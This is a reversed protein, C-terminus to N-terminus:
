ANAEPRGLWDPAPRDAKPQKIKYAAGAQTIVLIKGPPAAKALGILRNRHDVKSGTLGQFAFKTIDYASCGSCYVRARNDYDIDSADANQHCLPCICQTPGM